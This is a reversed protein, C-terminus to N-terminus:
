WRDVKAEAWLSFFSERKQVGYSDSIKLHQSNFEAIFLLFKGFIAWGM